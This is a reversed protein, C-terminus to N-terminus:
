QSCTMTIINFQLITLSRRLNQYVARAFPRALFRDEQNRAIAVSQSYLAMEAGAPPRASIYRSTSSCKMQRVMITGLVNLHRGYVTASQKRDAPASGQQRANERESKDEGASGRQCCVRM